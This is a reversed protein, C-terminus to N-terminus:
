RDDHLQDAHWGFVRINDGTAPDLPLGGARAARVAASLIDGFGEITSEIKLSTDSDKVTLQYWGESPRRPAAYHALKMSTLDAWALRRTMPGGRCVGDDSLEISSLSRVALNFSFVLFILGVLVLVGAMPWAIDLFALPGLTLAMGLVARIGDFLLSSTPYRHISM